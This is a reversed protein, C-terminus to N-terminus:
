PLDASFTFAPEDANTLKVRKLQNANAQSFGLSREISKLQEDTLHKGHQERIVAALSEAVKAAAPPQAQALGPAVFPAAGLLALAVTFERRTPQASDRDTEMM